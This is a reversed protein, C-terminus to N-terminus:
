GSSNIGPVADQSELHLKIGNANSFLGCDDTDVIAVFILIRVSEMDRPVPVPSSNTSISTFDWVVPLGIGLPSVVGESFSVSKPLLSTPEPKLRRCKIITAIAAGADQLQRASGENLDGTLMGEVKNNILWHPIIDVGSSTKRVPTYPKIGYGRACACRYDTNCTIIRIITGVGKSDLPYSRFLSAGSIETNLSDPTIMVLPSSLGDKNSSVSKPYKHDLPHRWLGPLKRM